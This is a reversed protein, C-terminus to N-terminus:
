NSNEPRSPLQVSLQRARKAALKHHAAAQELFSAKLKPDAEREAMQEFQIANELYEAILKM